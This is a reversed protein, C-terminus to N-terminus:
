APSIGQIHSEISRMMLRDKLIASAFSIDFVGERLSASLRVTVECISYLDGFRMRMGRRRVEGEESGGGRKRKMESQFLFGM